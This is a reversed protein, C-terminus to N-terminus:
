RRCWKQTVIPAANPNRDNEINVGNAYAVIYSRISDSPCGMGCSLRVGRWAEAVINRRLVRGGQHHFLMEGDCGGIVSHMVTTWVPMSAICLIIGTKPIERRLALHPDVAALSLCMATVNNTKAIEQGTTSSVGVVNPLMCEFSLEMGDNGLM